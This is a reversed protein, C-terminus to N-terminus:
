GGSIRCDYPRDPRPSCGAGTVLWGEGSVTLFLVDDDLVVQAQRGYAHTRVVGAASPVGAALVADPCQAGSSDEVETVVAPALLACAAQGDGEAVAAHFSQAVAAAGGADPALSACGALLACGALAPLALVAAGVARRRRGTGMARV